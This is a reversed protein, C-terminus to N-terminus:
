LSQSLSKQAYVHFCFFKLIDLSFFDKDQCLREESSVLFMSVAQKLEKIAIAEEDGEKEDGSSGSGEEEVNQHEEEEEVDAAKLDANGEEIFLCPIVIDLLEVSM